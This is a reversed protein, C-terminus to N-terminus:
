SPSSVRATAGSQKRKQTNLAAESSSTTSPLLLAVKLQLPEAGRSASKQLGSKLIEAYQVAPGSLPRALSPPPSRQQPQLESEDAQEASSRTQAKHQWQQVREE